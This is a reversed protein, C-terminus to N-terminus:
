IKADCRQLNKEGHLYYPMEKFDDCRRKWGWANTYWPYNGEPKYFRPKHGKACQLKESYDGHLSHYKCDLCDSAKKKMAGRKIM